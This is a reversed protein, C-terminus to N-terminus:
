TLPQSSSHPKKFTQIKKYFSYAFSLFFLIMIVDKVLEPVLKELFAGLTSGLLSCPVIVLVIDYDILSSNRRPHRKFVVSLVNPLASGAVMPQVLATSQTANYRLLNM